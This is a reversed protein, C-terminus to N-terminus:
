SSPKVLLVSEKEVVVAGPPDGKRKRIYKVPTYIVPVVTENKRKSFYAALQAAREIVERPFAKGAMYKILVHSGRADKVHLWLDEKFSFGFSLDDNNRANRGVLIRFGMHEFDNFKKEPEIKKKKSDTEKALKKLSDYDEIGKVREALESLRKVELRGAALSSTIHQIEKHQNKSKRYYNQALKAPTVGPKVRILVNENTYFNFLSVEQKDPTFANLNAMIVDALEKYGTGEQIKELRLAAKQIFSNRMKIKQQLASIRQNKETKIHEYKQWTSYFLNLAEVPNSFTSLTEGRSFFNLEIVGKYNNLFYHTPNELKKVIEQFAQWKKPIDKEAYQEAYLQEIAPKGMVPFVKDPDGSSLMFDEKTVLTGQLQDPKINWDNKLSSKFLMEVKDQRYLVINSRNGHLKYLLTYGTNLKLLISRDFRPVSLDEITSELICSFIDVSNKKARAYNGPVYLCSFTSKLDACLYQKGNKEVGLVLEDKSQCFSDKIKGGVLKKR